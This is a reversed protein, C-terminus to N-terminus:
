HAIEYIYVAKGFEDPAAVLLTDGSVKLSGGYFDGELDEEDPYLKLLDVWTDGARRFLTVSGAWFEHSSNSGSGVALIDGQLDVSSGFVSFISGDGAVLRAQQQWGDPGYEFIDVAGSLYGAEDASVGAM